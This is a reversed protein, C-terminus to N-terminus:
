RSPAPKDVYKSAAAPDLQYGASTRVLYRHLPIGRRDIVPLSLTEPWRAHVERMTRERFRSALAEDEGRSFMIWVQGIHDAQDMIVAWSDKDNQDAWVAAHISMEVVSQRLEEDSAADVHGGEAKATKGLLAIFAARDQATPLPVEYAAVTENSAPQPAVGCAACAWLMLPVVLSRM